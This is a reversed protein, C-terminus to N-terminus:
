GSTAAGTQAHATLDLYKRGESNYV